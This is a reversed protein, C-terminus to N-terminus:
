KKQKSYAKLGDKLDVQVAEAPVRFYHTDSRVDIELNSYIDLRVTSDSKEKLYSIETVRMPFAFGKEFKYSALYTRTILAGKKDFYACYVPLFDSNYAIEVWACMGGTKRPEFRRVVFNGDKRTSKLFFGERSLGMDEASGEAFLFLLEDSAKMMDADLTVTENTSPYYLKSFGFPSSTSYYSVGGSKWLINVDGGKMYYIKKEVAKMKGDKVTKSEADVHFFRQASVPRASLLCLAAIIFFLRGTGVAWKSRNLM